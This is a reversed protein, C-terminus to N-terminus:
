SKKAYAHFSESSDDYCDDDDDDNDDDDRHNHDHEHCVTCCFCGFGGEEYCWCVDCDLSDQVLDACEFKTCKVSTIVFMSMLVTALPFFPLLMVPM